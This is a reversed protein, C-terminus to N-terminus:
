PAAIGFKDSCSKTIANIEADGQMMEALEMMTMGERKALAEMVGDRACSCVDDIKTMQEATAPTGAKTMERQFNEICTKNFNERFKGAVQPDSFDVKYHGAFYYGGAFILVAAVILAAVGWIVYKM